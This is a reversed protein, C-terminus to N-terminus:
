NISIILIELNKYSIVIITNKIVDVVINEPKLIDINILIKIILNDVIHFERKILIINNYNKNLLDIELSMYENINYININLNKIIISFLIKKIIIKSYLEFLFKRDILNIIYNINFYLEYGQRALFFIVIAIVFKYGRFVYDLKYINFANSKIIKM